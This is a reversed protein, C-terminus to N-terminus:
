YDFNIEELFTPFSFVKSHALFSFVFHQFFASTNTQTESHM